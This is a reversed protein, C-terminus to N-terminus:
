WKSRKKWGKGRGNEMRSWQLDGYKRKAFEGTSQDATIDSVIQGPRYRHERTLTTDQLHKPADILTGIQSGAILSTV